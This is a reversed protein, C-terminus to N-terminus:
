LFKASTIVSPQKRSKPSIPLSHGEQSCAKSSFGTCMKWFEEKGGGERGRQGLIKRM